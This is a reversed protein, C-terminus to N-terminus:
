NDQYNKIIRAFWLISSLFHWFSPKFTEPLARLCVSLQFNSCMSTSTSIYFHSILFSDLWGGGAVTNAEAELKNIDGSSKCRITDTTILFTLEGIGGGTTNKEAWGCCSVWGDQDKDWLKSFILKSLRELLVPETLLSTPVVCGFVGFVLFLGCTTNWHYKKLKNQLHSQLISHPCNM